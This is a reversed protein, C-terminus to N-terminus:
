LRHLLRRRLSYFRNTWPGIRYGYVAAKAETAASDYRVRMFEVSWDLTDLIAFEAQKDGNKRQADVSGPNVLYLKERNLLVTRNAQLTGIESSVEFVRQEHSHGFFCLRAGPFDARLFEANQRVQADTKMYLQVDRVGGHVLVVDRDVALRSPLSELWEATQAGLLRRTRRLAYAANNSCREFGMHGTGILDHNGAIALAGRRRLMDACEDPDANYGVIDGLCLLRRV